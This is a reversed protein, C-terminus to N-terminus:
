ENVVHFSYVATEMRRGDPLMGLLRLSYDGTPLITKPLVIAVIYKSHADPQTTLGDSHWLVAGEASELSVVYRSYEMRDLTLHLPVLSVDHPVMISKQYATHRILGTTLTIPPMIVEPPKLKALEQELQQRLREQEARFSIQSSELNGLERRLHINDIVLALCVLVPILWTPMLLFRPVIGFLRARALPRQTRAAYNASAYDLLAETIELEKHGAPTSLFRETFEKRELESGAGTLYARIMEEETAVLEEFVRSDHLYLDEFGSRESESMQRLLYRTMQTKQM